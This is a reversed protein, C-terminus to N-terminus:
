LPMDAQAKQGDTITLNDITSPTGACLEIWQTGDFEWLDNYKLNNDGSGGFIYFKTDSALCAAFGSRLEPKPRAAVEVLEWTFQAGQQHLKYIDNM